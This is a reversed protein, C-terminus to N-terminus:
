FTQVFRSSLFLDLLRFFRQRYKAHFVQPQLLAYLRPYFEPYELNYDQMLLFLGNLSLLSIVGGIRYSDTLFDALRLPSVASAASLDRAKPAKAKSGDVSAGLMSVGAAGAAAALCPLIKSPVELLM